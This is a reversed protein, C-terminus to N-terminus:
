NFAEKESFLSVIWRINLPKSLLLLGSLNIDKIPWSKPEGRHIPSKIVEDLNYEADMSYIIIIIIYLVWSAVNENFDKLPVEGKIRGLILFTDKTDGDYLFSPIM